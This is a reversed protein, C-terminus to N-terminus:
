KDLPTWSNEAETTGIETPSVFDTDKAIGKPQKLVSQSKVMITSLPSSIVSDLSNFLVTLPMHIPYDM